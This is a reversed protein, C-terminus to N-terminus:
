KSLDVQILLTEPVVVSMKNGLFENIYKESLLYEKNSQLEKVINLNSVYVENLKTIESSTAIVENKIYISSLGLFTITTIYLIYIIFKSLNKNNRKRRM